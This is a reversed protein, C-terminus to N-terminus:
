AESGTHGLRRLEDNVADRRDTLHLKEYADRQRLLLARLQDNAQLSRALVSGEEWAKVAEAYQGLEYHCAGINETCQIKVQANAMAQAINKAGEYYTGAEAWRRQSLHLNGLNLSINLLVPIADIRGPENEQALRDLAPTLASEFHKRAEEAQGARAYVEGM